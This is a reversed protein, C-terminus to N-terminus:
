IPLDFALFGPGTFLLSIALILLIFYYNVRDSFFAKNKIKTFLKVALDIIIIAVAVQTFLGIIIFLSAVGQVIGIVKTNKTSSLRTNTFTKYTWYLLILGLTLRIIFPSFPQLSLLSPFVSLM